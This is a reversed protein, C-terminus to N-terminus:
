RPPRATSGSTLAARAPDASRMVLPFRYEVDNGRLYFLDVEGGKGRVADFGAETLEVSVGGPSVASCTTSSPLRNATTAVSATM